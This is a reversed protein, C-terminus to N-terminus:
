LLHIIVILTVIAALSSMMITSDPAEGGVRKGKAHIEFAAPVATLIVAMLIWSNPIVFLKIQKALLWFILPHVLLKAAAIAGEWQLKAPDKILKGRVMWGGFAFLACPAASAAVARLAFDVQSSLNVDLKGLIIGAVLAILIPSKAQELAAKKLGPKQKKNVIVQLALVLIAMVLGHIGVLLAMASVAQTKLILAAAPMGLLIVSSHSGSIAMLVQKGVDAKFVYRAAAVGIAMVAAAAILYLIALEVLNGVSKDIVTSRLMVGFVFVPMAVTFVYQILADIFGGSVYRFRTAAYGAVLILFFPVVHEFSM